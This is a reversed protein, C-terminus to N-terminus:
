DDNAEHLARFGALCARRGDVISTAAGFSEIAAAYLASLAPNGILVVDQGALPGHVAVADAIETGILLGRLYSAADAKALDGRMVQARAGFLLTGLSLRGERGRALGKRFADGDRAEGEVVSALLGQTTLRDHLEGAINTFFDGIGAGRFGVWKTHAGPLVALDARAGIRALGLLEIEEGRLVDPAGDERRCAVGPVIHVMVGGIDSAVAHARLRSPGAPADAYPVQVWGLNSGIMGSAYITSVGPWRAAVDAIMAAMGDRDLGIVGKPMVFEDLASGDAAILYARFNNSAWNIGVIADRDADRSM